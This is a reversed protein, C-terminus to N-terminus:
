DAAADRPCVRQYKCPDVVAWAVYSSVVFKLRANVATM